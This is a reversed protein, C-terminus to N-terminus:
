IRVNQDFFFNIQENEGKAPEDCVSEKNKRLFIRKVNTKFAGFNTTVYSFGLSQKRHVM